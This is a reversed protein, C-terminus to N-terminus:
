KKQRIHHRLLPSQLTMCGLQWDFLPVWGDLANVTVDICFRVSEAQPDLYFDGVRLCINTTWKLARCEEFGASFNRDLIVGGNLTLQLEVSLTNANWLVAVCGTQNMIENCCECESAAGNCNCGNSFAADGWVSLGNQGRALKRDGPAPLKLIQREFPSVVTFCGLEKRYLTIWNLAAKVAFSLCGTISRKAENIYFHGVGLCVSVIPLYPIPLCADMGATINKSIVTTGNATLAIDISLSPFNWSLEICINETHHKGTIPM